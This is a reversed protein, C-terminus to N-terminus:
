VTAAMLPRERLVETERKTPLKIAHIPIQGQPQVQTDRTIEDVSLVALRPLTSQSIQRLVPRVTASCIVVPQYGARVLKNSQRALEQVVGDVVQPSLKVRLGREGSEFGSTLVDELAPDLTIARLTRAADRYQHCITRSLSERAHETLVVLDKTRDAHDGLTQLITELDKVPVRERLLNCLIQHVHSPKLLEPILEEVVKPSTQQLNELLQHVHQRTLLEDAHAKVIDTLHTMLQVVPEVVKYGLTKAQESQQPEIWKAPRGSVPETYDVGTLEGSVFGTNIALLADPRLEGAAISVGRLKIQYGLDKLRLSDRIKVKPLIIGLELAIKNRLQTVRDMLDGGSEPDVLKILRFGLELEIPEVNLKDEPRPERALRETLSNSTAEGATTSPSTSAAHPQAESLDLSSNNESHFASM